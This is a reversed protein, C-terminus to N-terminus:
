QTSQLMPKKPNPQDEESYFGKQGDFVYDTSVYTFHSNISASAKALHNTAEANTKWALDQNIGCGDVDTYAATHIIAKSKLKTITESVQSQNTLDLKIPKGL